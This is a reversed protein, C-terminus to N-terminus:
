FQQTIHKFNNSDVEVISTMRYKVTSGVEDVGNYHELLAKNIIMELEQENIPKVPNHDFVELRLDCRIAVGHRVIRKDSM